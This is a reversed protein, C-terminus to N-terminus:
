SRVMIALIMTSVLIVTTLIWIRKGDKQNGAPKIDEMWGIRQRFKANEM